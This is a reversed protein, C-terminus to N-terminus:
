GSQTEASCGIDLLTPPGSTHEEETKKVGVQRVGFTRDTCVTGDAHSPALEAAMVRLQLSCYM